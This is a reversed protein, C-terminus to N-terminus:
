LFRLNISLNSLCWISPLEAGNSVFENWRLLLWRSVTHFFSALRRDGAAHRVHDDIFPCLKDRSLRRVRCLTLTSLVFDVVGRRAFREAM